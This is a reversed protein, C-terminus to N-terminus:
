PFVVGDGSLGVRGARRGPAPRDGGPQIDPREEVLALIFAEHADLKSGGPQGQKRAAVEGTEGYRRVVEGGDFGRGRFTVGGPPRFVARYRRM